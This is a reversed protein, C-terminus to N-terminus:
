EEKKELVINIKLGGVREAIINYLWGLLLGMLFGLLAIAFPILAGIFLARIKSM